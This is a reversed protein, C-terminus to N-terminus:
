TNLTTAKQMSTWPSTRGYDDVNRGRFKLVTGDPYSTDLVACSADGSATLGFTFNPSITNDYGPMAWYDLILTDGADTPSTWTMCFGGSGIATVSIGDIHQPTSPEPPPASKKETNPFYKQLVMNIKIYGNLPTMPDKLAGAYSRWLEKQVDTLGYFEGSLNNLMGRIYQQKESREQHVGSNHRKVVGIGKWNSLVSFSIRGRIRNVLASYEIKAM